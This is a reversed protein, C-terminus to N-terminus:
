IITTSTDFLQVFNNQGANYRWVASGVVATTLNNDISTWVFATLNNTIPQFLTQNAQSSSFIHKDVSFRDCNQSVRWVSTSNVGLSSVVSTLDAFRVYTSNLSKYLIYNNSSDKLLECQGSKAVQSWSGNITFNSNAINNPASSDARFLSLTTSSASGNINNYTWEFSTPSNYTATSAPVTFNIYPPIPQPVIVSMSALSGYDNQIVSFGITSNTLNDLVSYVDLVVLKSTYFPDVFTKNFKTLELDSTLNRARFFVIQNGVFQYAEEVVQGTPNHDKNSTNRAVMYYDSFDFENPTTGSMTTLFHTFDQPVLDNVQKNAYDISKAVILTTNLNLPTYGFGMKTLQPSYYIDFRVNYNTGSVTKTGLLTLNNLPDDLFFYITENISYQTYNNFSNNFLTSNAATIIIRNAAATITFYDSNPFSYIQNYQGRFPDM